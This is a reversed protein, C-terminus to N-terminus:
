GGIQKWFFTVNPATFGTLLAACGGSCYVNLELPSGTVLTLGSCIISSGTGTTTGHYLNVTGQAGDNALISMLVLDQSAIATVGSATVRKPIGADTVLNM